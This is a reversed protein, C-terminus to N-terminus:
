GEVPTWGLADCADSFDDVAAQWDADPGDVAAVLGAHAHVLESEGSEAVDDAIRDTVDARRDAPQGESVWAAFGTCADVGADSLGQSCGALMVALLGAFVCRRTM